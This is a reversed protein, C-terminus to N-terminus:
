RAELKEALVPVAPSKVRFDKLNNLQNLETGTTGPELIRFDSSMKQTKALGKPLKIEDKASVRAQAKHSSAPPLM